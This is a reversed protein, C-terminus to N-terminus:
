SVQLESMIDRTDNEDHSVSTFRNRYKIAFLSAICSANSLGEVTKSHGNVVKVCNKRVDSWFNCQDSETNAIHLGNVHLIIRTMKLRGYLMNHYCM